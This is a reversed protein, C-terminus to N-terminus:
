QVMIVGVKWTAIDTRESIRTSPQTWKNLQQVPVSLEWIRLVLNCGIALNIYRSHLKSLFANFKYWRVLTFYLDM